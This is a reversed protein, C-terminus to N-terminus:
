CFGANSDFMRATSPLSRRKKDDDFDLKVKKALDDSGLVSLGAIAM